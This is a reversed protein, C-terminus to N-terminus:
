TVADELRRAHVSLNGDMAEPLRKLETFSRTKSV